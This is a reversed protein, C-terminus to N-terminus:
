HITDDSAQIMKITAFVQDIDNRMEQILQEKEIPGYYRIVTSMLDKLFEIDEPFEKGVEMRIITDTIVETINEVMEQGAESEPKRSM